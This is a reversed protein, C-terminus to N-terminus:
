LRKWMGGAAANASVGLLQEETSRGWFAGGKATGRDEQLPPPGGLKTTELFPVPGFRGGFRNFRRM